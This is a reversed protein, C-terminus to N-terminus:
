QFVCTTTASMHPDAPNFHVELQGASFRSLSSQLSQCRARSVSEFQNTSCLFNVVKRVFYVCFFELSLCSYLFLVVCLHFMWLCILLVSFRGTSCLFIMNRGEPKKHRTQWCGGFVLKTRVWISTVRRPLANWGRQAVCLMMRMLPKSLFSMSENSTM